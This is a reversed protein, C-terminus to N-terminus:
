THCAANPDSSVTFDVSGFSLLLVGLRHLCRLHHGKRNKWASSSKSPMPPRRHVDNPGGASVLNVLLDSRDGNLGTHQIYVPACHSSPHFRDNEVRTACVHEATPSPRTALPNSQMPTCRRGNVGSGSFAAIDVKSGSAACL